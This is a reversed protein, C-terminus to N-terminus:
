TTCYDHGAGRTREKHPGISKCRGEAFAIHGQLLSGSNEQQRSDAAATGSRLIVQGQAAYGIAFCTSIFYKMTVANTM